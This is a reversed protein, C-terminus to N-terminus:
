LLLNEQYHKVRKCAKKLLVIICKLPRRAAGKQIEKRQTNTGAMLAPLVSVFVATLAPRFVQLILQTQLTTM